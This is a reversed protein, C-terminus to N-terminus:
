GGRVGAARGIDKPCVKTLPCRVCDPDRPSCFDRGILWAGLDLAGPSDPNLQRATAIMHQRDDTDALRARLFVRRVHVDYAIDGEAMDGVPVGLDRELIQVAMAAKKQGIGDFGELRRHIAAATPKETWVNAADGRYTVMVKKAAQVLWLPTKDVYRHLALPGQIAARVSAIDDALQSPNFYGLRQRLLYPALWAREASIGQDL